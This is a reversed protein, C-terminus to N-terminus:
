STIQRRASRDFAATVKPSLSMRPKQAAARRTRLASSLIESIRKATTMASVKVQVSATSVAPLNCTPVIGNAASPQLRAQADDVGGGFGAGRASSL